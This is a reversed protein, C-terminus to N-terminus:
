SPQTPASKRVMPFELNRASLQKCVLEGMMEKGPVLVLQGQEDFEGVLDTTFYLRKQVRVINHTYREENGYWVQQVISESLVNLDTVWEIGEIAVQQITEPHYGKRMRRAPSRQLCVWEDTGLKVVGLKPLTLDLSEWTVTQQAAWEADVLRNGRAFIGGGEEFIETIAFAWRVSEHDVYTVVSHRYYHTLDAVLSWGTEVIRNSRPM